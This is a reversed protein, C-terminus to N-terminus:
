RHVRCAEALEPNGQSAVTFFRDGVCAAFQAFLRPEDAVRAQEIIKIAESTDGHHIALAAETMLWDVSLNGVKRKQELEANM